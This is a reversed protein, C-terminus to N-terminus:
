KKCFLNIDEVRSNPYKKMLESVTIQSVQDNTGDIEYIKYGLQILHNLHKDPEKGHKRIANPWWEQIIKIDENKKLISDMCDLALSEAGAIDIKIFDIKKQDEFYDDLTVSKIKVEEYASNPKFLFNENSHKGSMYFVIQENKNSVAKQILTVNSYNNVQVNIQLIEFNKPSAEFAYVHGNPGVLKAFLLTYYGIHAGVDIIICHTEIFHM